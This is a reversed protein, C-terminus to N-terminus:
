KKTPINLLDREAKRRAIRSGLRALGYLAGAIVSVTLGQQMIWNPDIRDMSDSTKQMVDTLVTASMSIALPSLAGVLGFTKITDDLLRFRFMIDGWRRTREAETIGSEQALKEEAAKLEEVKAALRKEEAQIEEKLRGIEESAPQKVNESAATPFEKMPKFVTKIISTYM